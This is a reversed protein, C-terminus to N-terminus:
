VTQSQDGEQGDAMQLDEATGVSQSAQLDEAKEAVHCQIWQCDLMSQDVLHVYRHDYSESMGSRNSPNHHHHRMYFVMCGDIESIMNSEASQIGLFCLM